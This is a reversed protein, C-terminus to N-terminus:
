KRKRNPKLSKLKNNYAVILDTSNAKSCNPAITRFTYHLDQVDPAEDIMGLVLCHKPGTCLAIDCARSADSKSGDKIKRNENREPISM